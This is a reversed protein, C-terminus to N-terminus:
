CQELIDRIMQQYSEIFNDYLSILLKIICEEISEGNESFYIGNESIGVCYIEESCDIEVNYGFRVFWDIIKYAKLENFDQWKTNYGICEGSSPIIQPHKIPEVKYLKYLEEM